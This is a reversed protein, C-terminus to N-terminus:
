RGDEMSVDQEQPEAQEVSIHGAARWVNGRTAKWVRVRGDNGSSSLITSCLYNTNMHKLAFRMLMGLLMGSWEVLRM